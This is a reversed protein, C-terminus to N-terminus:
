NHTDTMLYSHAFEGIKFIYEAYAAGACEQKNSDNCLKFDQGFCENIQHKDAVLQEIKIKATGGYCEGWFAISIHNFGKDKAM